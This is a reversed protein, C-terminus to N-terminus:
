PWEIETESNDRKIADPLWDLSTPESRRLGCEWLVIVRWGDRILARINKRDRDVNQKFKARWVDKNSATIYSLDCGKHRHWFCGHVFIVVRYRLLCIDPTGPLSRDHLNYRLGKAHLFRRVKMEPQTDKGKIGAMMRSRTQKDVIDVM